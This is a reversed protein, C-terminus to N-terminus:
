KIRGTVEKVRARQEASMDGIIRIATSQTVEPEQYEVFRMSKEGEAILDPDTLAKRVAAQLYQVRAPALGPPVVLVRGLVDVSSRFDFWWEQEPTMGYSEFITPVDPFFRSRKRSMTALPMASKGRVYNNASSENSLAYDSEGRALALVVDNTGPYGLVIKCNLKLAECTIAAGDSLGDMPGTAGWILQSNLKVVGAVAKAKAKPGTLWVDPSAGTGGLYGLKSMDYRVGSQETIQAMTAATGKVLMMQLGDPPSMAIGNLARIGGAGPRNEVIVTTHLYKALYPALMRAYVDYGGGPSFGVAIKITKGQFYEAESAQARAHSVLCTASLLVATAIVVSPLKM